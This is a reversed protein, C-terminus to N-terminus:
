STFDIPPRLRAANSKICCDINILDMYGYLEKNTM